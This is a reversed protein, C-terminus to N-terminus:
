RFVPISGSETRRDGAARLKKELELIRRQGAALAQASTHISHHGLHLPYPHPEASGLIFVSNEKGSSTLTIPTEGHEFVAMEGTALPTGADLSGRAIALWGVSHGTPPQYTWSEGPKLTVLLYNIGEPAPVPSQADGHRGLIVHAPGTRPIDHAEIYRSVPASNEQDPRLALWLQFAQIRPAKGPSLEKGHWVGGGARMWEVGGYGLTGSAKGPDEYRVHGETILTVTAIGSHPHLPMGAIAQMTAPSVDILDLLVFPKLSQGLDAPSTLRTIPGHKHGSTRYAIPRTAAAPSSVSLANM